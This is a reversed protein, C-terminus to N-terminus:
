SRSVWREYFRIDDAFTDRLASMKVSDNVIDSYRTPYDPSVARTENIRLEPSDIGLRRITGSWDARFSSYEGIFDFIGMDTDRFLYRSYLWRMTPFRAFQMFEAKTSLMYRRVPHRYVIMPSLWFFYHSLAREIPHRLITARIEVPVPNYKRIWIHGTVADKQDLFKYSSDHHRQLFGDPDLNMPSAPNAPGDHDRHLRTGFYCELAKTISAGGTKPVHVFLLKLKRM